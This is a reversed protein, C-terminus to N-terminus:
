CLLVTTPICERGSRVQLPMIYLVHFRGTSHSLLSCSSAGAIFSTSLLSTRGFREVDLTIHISTNSHLSHRAVAIMM